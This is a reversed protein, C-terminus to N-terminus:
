DGGRLIWQFWSLKEPTATPTPTPTRTPRLTPTPTATQPPTATATPRSETQRTAAPIFLRQGVVLINSNLCNRSKIGAMSVGYRSALSYLSDGSRVTHAIDGARSTRDCAPIPTATPQPTARPTPQPTSTASPASREATPTAPSSQGGSDTASDNPESTARPTSTAVPTATPEPTNTPDPLTINLVTGVRITDPNPINNEGLIQSVTVNYRNAIKTLSEGPAVTHQITEGAWLTVTLMLWVALGAVVIMSLSKKSASAPQVGWKRWRNHVTSLFTQQRM